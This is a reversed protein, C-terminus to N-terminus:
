KSLHSVHQNQFRFSCQNRPLAPWTFDKRTVQNASVNDNMMKTIENEFIICARRNSCMHKIYSTQCILYWLQWGHNKRLSTAARSQLDQDSQMTLLRQGVIRAYLWYTENFWLISRLGHPLVLWQIFVTDSIWSHSIDVQVLLGLGKRFVKLISTMFMATARSHVSILTLRHRPETTIIKVRRM